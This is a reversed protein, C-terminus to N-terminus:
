RSVRSTFVNETPHVVEPEFSGSIVPKETSVDRNVRGGVLNLSEGEFDGSNQGLASAPSRFREDAQKKQGWILKTQPSAFLMELLESAVGFKEM